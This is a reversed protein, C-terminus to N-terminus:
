VCGHCPFGRENDNGESWITQGDKNETYKGYVDGAVDLWRGEFNDGPNYELHYMLLHAAEHAINKQQLINRSLYIKQLIRDAYCEQKAVFFTVLSKPYLDIGKIQERMQPTLNSLYGATLYTVKPDFGESLSINPFLIKFGQVSLKGNTPYGSEDDWAVIEGAHFDHGLIRVDEDLTGNLLKRNTSYFVETDAKHWKGNISAREALIGGCIFAEQGCHQIPRDNRIKEGNIGVVTKSQVPQAAAPKTASFCSTIVAAMSLTKALRSRPYFHSIKSIM